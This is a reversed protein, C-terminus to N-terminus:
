GRRWRSDLPRREPCAVSTTTSTRTSSPGCCRSRPSRSSLAELPRIRRQEAPREDLQLEALRDIQRRPVGRPPAGVFVPANRLTSMWRSTRDEVSGAVDPLARASRLRHARRHGHLFPRREAQSVPEFHAVFQVGRAVCRARVRDAGLRGAPARKSDPDGAVEPGPVRRDRSRRQRPPGSHASSARRAGRHWTAARRRGAFRTWPRGRATAHPAHGPDPCCGGATRLWRDGLERELLADPERPSGRKRRSCARASDCAPAPLRIVGEVQDFRDAVERRGADEVRSVIRGIRRAAPKM